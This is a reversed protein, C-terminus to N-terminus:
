QDSKESRDHVGKQGQQGIHRHHFLREGAIGMCRGYACTDNAHVATSRHEMNQHHWGFQGIHSTYRRDIGGASKCEGFTGKAEDYPRVYASGMNAIFERYLRQCDGLGISENSLQLHFREFRGFEISNELYFLLILM